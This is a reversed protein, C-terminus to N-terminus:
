NSLILLSYQNTQFGLLKASQLLVVRVTRVGSQKMAVYHNGM